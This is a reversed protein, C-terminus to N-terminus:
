DRRREVRARVMTKAKKNRVEQGYPGFVCRRPSGGVLSLSNEPIPPGRPPPHPLAFSPCPYYSICVSSTLLSQSLLYSSHPVDLTQKSLSARVTLSTKYLSPSPPPTVPKSLSVAGPLSVPGARRSQARVTLSLEFRPAPLFSFHPWPYM